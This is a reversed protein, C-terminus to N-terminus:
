EFVLDVIKEAAEQLERKYSAEDRKKTTQLAQVQEPSLDKDKQEAPRPDGFMAKLIADIGRQHSSKGEPVVAGYEELVAESAFIPLKNWVAIGLADSPRADIERISGDTAKVKITAYYIDSEMKSIEVSEISADSAKLLNAMLQQTVPRTGTRRSDQVIGMAIARAEMEGIWIVLVRRSQEAFLVVQYLTFTQGNSNLGEQNPIDAVVVPVMRNAGRSYHVIPLVAELYNKLQQRAKHLRVKVASVSIELMEAIESTKFGDYYFLVVVERNGATLSALAQEITQRLETEEALIEPSPMEDAIYVGGNLAELSFLNVSQSRIFDRCVNLAIGYLWGRFRAPERLQTLSLFAQLFTEQSLDHAIDSQGVVSYAVQLVMIRYREILVGFASRNGALSAAILESDSFTDM